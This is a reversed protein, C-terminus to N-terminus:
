GTTEVDEDPNTMRGTRPDRVSLDGTDDEQYLRQGYADVVVTYGTVAPHGLRVTSPGRRGTRHRAAGPLSGRRALARRLEPHVPPRRAPSPPGAAVPYGASPGPEPSEEKVQVLEEAEATETDGAATEEPPEGFHKLLFHRLTNESMHLLGAMSSVTYRSRLGAVTAALGPPMQAAPHVHRVQGEERDQAVRRLLLFHGAGGEDRERDEDLEAPLQPPAGSVVTVCYM